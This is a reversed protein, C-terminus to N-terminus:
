LGLVAHVTSKGHVATAVLHHSFFYDTCFLTITVIDAAYTCCVFCTYIMVGEWQPQSSCLRCCSLAVDVVVVVVVVIVVIMVLVVVVDVVM